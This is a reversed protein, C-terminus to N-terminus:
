ADLLEEAPRATALDNALREIEQWQTETGTEDLYRVSDFSTVAQDLETAWSPFLVRAHRVFDQATTGPFMTVLTREGLSRAISRLGELIALSFNGASAASRAASLIEAASRQDDEGFLEGGIASRRNLRPLGFVLFAILLVVAVVVVVVIPGLGPISPAAGAGLSNFWDRVATAARDFWTPQSARYEPKALEKLIWAQATPGNPTVPPEVRGQALIM